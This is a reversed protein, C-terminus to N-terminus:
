SCRRAVAPGHLLEVLLDNLGRRAPRGDQDAALGARALLEDGVGEVVVRGARALGEDAHAAGRQGFAEDLGLQEAVLGARERVRARLLLAAELEGVAAREEEVLDAVQRGGVCIM